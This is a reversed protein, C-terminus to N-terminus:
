EICTCGLHMKCYAVVIPIEVQKIRDMIHVYINRLEKRDDEHIYRILQMILVYATVDTRYDLIALLFRLKDVEDLDSLAVSLQEKFVPFVLITLGSILENLYDFVAYAYNEISRNELRLLLLKLTIHSRLQKTITFHTCWYESFLSVFSTDTVQNKSVADVFTQFFKNVMIPSSNSLFEFVINFNRIRNSLRNKFVQVIFTGFNNVKGFYKKIVYIVFDDSFSTVIYGSMYEFLTELYGDIEIHSVELDEYFYLCKEVYRTRYKSPVNKKVLSELTEVDNKDINSLRDLVLHFIDHSPNKSFYKLTASFVHKQSSVNSQITTTLLNTTYKKDLVACSLFIAHKRASVAQKSLQEVYSYLLREPSKHFTSYLAPLTSRLYDGKAFKMITPLMKYPEDVKGLIKAINLQITFMNRMEEDELNIKKNKPLFRNEVINIIEEPTLIHYSRAICKNLISTDNKDTEDLRNMYYEKMKKDFGLHSYQKIFKNDLFTGYNQKLNNELIVDYYPVLTSPENKLLWDILSTHYYDKCLSNLYFNLLDNGFITRRKKQVVKIFVEEFARVYGQQEIGLAFINLLTANSISFAYQPYFDNYIIVKPILDLESREFTEKNFVSKVAFTIEPFQNLNIYHSPFSVCFKVLICILRHFPANQHNEVFVKSVMECFRIYIKKETALNKLRLENFYDDEILEKFYDIFIQEVEIDNEVMFKLYHKRIGTYFHYHPNKQIKLITLINYVYKWHIENLNGLKYSNCISSLLDEAHFTEKNLRTFIYELIIELSTADKNRTCIEILLGLLSSKRNADSTHNIKKKIIEFAESAPYYKLYDEYNTERKEYHFAAWKHLTEQPPKFETIHPGLVGLIDKESKNVFNENCTEYFLQWRRNKPYYKIFENSNCFNPLELFSRPFIKKFFTKFDTGLKHVMVSKNLFRLYRECNRFIDDKSIKMISKTTRKGVSHVHLIEDKELELLLKPNNLGIHRVVKQESYASGTTTKFQILYFKLINENKTFLAIVQNSRFKIDNEELVSKIKDLTCKPLVPLATTLGYKNELSDFLEDTKEENWCQSLKTILKTRVVYSFYPMYGNVIVNVEIDKFALEFFWPQKLIKTAFLQNGGKLVELLIEIRKFYILTDIYFLSEQYTKPELKELAEIQDQESQFLSPNNILQFLSKKREGILNGELNHFRSMFDM